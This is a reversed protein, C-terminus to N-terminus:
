FSNIAPHFEVQLRPAKIFPSLDMGEVETTICARETKYALYGWKMPYNLDMSERLTNGYLPNELPSKELPSKELPSEKSEGQVCMYYDEEDDFFGFIADYHLLCKKVMERFEAKEKALDEPTIDEPKGIKTILTYNRM